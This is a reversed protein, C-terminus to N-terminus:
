FEFAREEIADSAEDRLEYYREAMEPDALLRGECVHITCILRMHPPATCGTPGMLPLKPHGTPTLETDFNTRAFHITDECHPASCCGGGNNCQTMCVPGTLEAIEAMITEYSRTM